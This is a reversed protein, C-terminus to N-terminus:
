TISEEISTKSSFLLLDLRYRKLIERHSQRKLYKYKGTNKSEYMVFFIKSHRYYSKWRIYKKM